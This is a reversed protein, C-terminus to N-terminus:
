YLRYGFILEVISYDARWLTYIKKHFDRVTGYRAELEFKDKFSYGIGFSQSTSLGGELNIDAVDVKSSVPLDFVYLANIYIKNKENLFFYHRLGIPIELSIHNVDIPDEQSGFVSENKYYHVAPEVIAAWKNRNFNFIFEFEAGLRVGIQPGFDVVQIGGILLSLDSYSIGPRISINLLKESPYPVLINLTNPNKCLNYTRFVTILEKHNYTLNDLFDKVIGECVLGNKLQQRFANNKRIGNTERIYKKYILEEIKNNGQKFFFKTILDKEYKYLQAEGEVLVKLFLIDKKYEPKRQYSLHNTKVGSTDVNGEFRIYKLTSDVGFEKVQRINNELTEGNSSLKYKFNKPNNKWDVNKIWCEVREDNNNIYYGKEFDIQASVNLLISTLVVLLSIKKM